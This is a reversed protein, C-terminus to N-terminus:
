EEAPMTAKDGEREGEGSNGESVVYDNIWRWEISGYGTRYDVASLNNSM